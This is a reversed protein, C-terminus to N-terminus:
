FFRVNDITVDVLCRNTVGAAVTFQWQVGTLRAKDIGIAPSGGMPAGAGSFPVMVTTPTVAVLLPAQPSWSGPPGSGKPDFTADTHASDNTAYQATCGAGDISGSIDFQVGTHPTADICSLGTPSAIFFIGAGLFLDTDTGAAELTIHWAGNSATATPAPNGYTFTGGIPLIPVGTNEVDFDAIIPDGPAINSFSCGLLGGGAGAKGTAPGRGGVGTGFTGGTGAVGGTGPNSLNGPTVGVGVCQALFYTPPACVRRGSRFGTCSLAACDTDTTCPDGIRATGPAVCRTGLCVAPSVCRDVCPEGLGPISGCVGIGDSQTPHCALDDRCPPIAPAGCADGENGPRRCTFSVVNCTLRLAPDPDCQPLSLQNCPQSDLPYPRCVGNV